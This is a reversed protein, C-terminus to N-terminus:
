GRKAKQLKRILALLLADCDDLDRPGWRGFQYLFMADHYLDPDPLRAIEADSV